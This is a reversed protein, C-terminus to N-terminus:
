STYLSKQEPLILYAVAEILYSQNPWLKYPVENKNECFLNKVAPM